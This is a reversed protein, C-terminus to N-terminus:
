NLLWSLPNSRLEPGLVEYLQLRVLVIWERVITAWSPPIEYSNLVPWVKARILGRVWIQIWIWFEEEVRM